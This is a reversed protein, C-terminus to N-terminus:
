TLPFIDPKFFDPIFILSSRARLYYVRHYVIELAQIFLQAQTDEPLYHYDIYYKDHALQNAISKTLDSVYSAM